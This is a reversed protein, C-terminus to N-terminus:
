NTFNVKPGGGRVLSEPFVYVEGMKTPTLKRQITTIAGNEDNPEYCGWRQTIDKGQRRAELNEPKLIIELPIAILTKTESPNTSDGVTAENLASLALGLISTNAEKNDTGAKTQFSSGEKSIMMKRSSQRPIGDPRKPEIATAGRGKDEAKFGIVSMRTKNGEGDVSKEGWIINYTGSLDDFLGESQEVFKRVSSFEIRYGSKFTFSGDPKLVLGTFDASGSQFALGNDNYRYFRTESVVTQRGAELPLGGKDVTLIVEAELKLIAEKDMQAKLDAEKKAKKTDEIKKKKAERERVRSEREEKKATDLEKIFSSAKGKLLNIARCSTTLEGTNVLGKLEESPTIGLTKLAGLFDSATIEPNQNIASVEYQFWEVLIVCDEALQKYKPRQAEAELAAENLQLQQLATTTPDSIPLSTISEKRRTVRGGRGGAAGAKPSTGEPATPATSRAFLSLPQHFPSLVLVSETSAAVPRCRLV